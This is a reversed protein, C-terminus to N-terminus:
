MIQMLWISNSNASTVEIFPQRINKTQFELLYAKSITCSCILNGLLITVTFEVTNYQVAQWLPKDFLGHLHQDLM